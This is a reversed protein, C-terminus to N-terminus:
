KAGRSEISKIAENIAESDLESPKAAVLEPAYLYDMFGSHVQVENRRCAEKSVEAYNGILPRFTVPIEPLDNYRGEHEVLRGRSRILGRRSATLEYVAETKEGVAESM